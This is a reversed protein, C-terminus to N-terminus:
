EDSVREERQLQEILFQLIEIEKFSELVIERRYDRQTPKNPHLRNYEERPMRKTLTLVTIPKQFQESWQQRTDLLYVDGYKLTIAMMVKKIKSRFKGM